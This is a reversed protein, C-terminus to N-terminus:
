SNINHEQRVTDAWTRMPDDIMPRFTCLSMFGCEDEEGKACEGDRAKCYQSMDCLVKRLTLGKLKIIETMDEYKKKFMQEKM